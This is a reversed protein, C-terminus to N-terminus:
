RGRELYRLAREMTAPKDRQVQDDQGCFRIAGIGLALQGFDRGAAGRTEDGPIQLVGGKLHEEWAGVGTQFFTGVFLGNSLDGAQICYATAGTAGGLMTLDTQAIGPTPQAAFAAAAAALFTRKM